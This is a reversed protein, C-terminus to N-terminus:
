RTNDKMWKFSGMALASRGQARIAVLVNIAISKISFGVSTLLTITATDTVIVEKFFVQM